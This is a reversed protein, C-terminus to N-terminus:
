HAGGLPRIRINRFWVPDGHDQLAIHGSRRSAFAPMDAFKSAALRRNWEESGIEIDATSHGNLWQQIHDGRLVIRVQNWEGVPRAIDSPPDILDYLAGSRHNAILGDAHADDDLVQMEPGTHWPQPQDEGVRYMIGSNGGEAIRWELELEFDGYQERTVIDGREGGPVFALTGNDIQWGAPLDARQFGRWHSLDQGDFLVVWEGDQRHQAAETSVAEEQSATGCGASVLFPISLSMM